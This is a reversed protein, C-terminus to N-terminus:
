TRKRVWERLWVSNGEIEVCGMGVLVDLAQEFGPRSLATTSRLLRLDNTVAFAEDAPLERRRAGNRWLAEIVSAEADTLELESSRWVKNWVYLGILARVYHSQDASGVAAVGVDPGLDFLRSWSLLINGPKRSVGGATSSFTILESNYEYTPPRITAISHLLTDLEGEGLGKAVDLGSAFARLEEYSEM